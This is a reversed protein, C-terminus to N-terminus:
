KSCREGHEPFPKEHAWVTAGWKDGGLNEEALHRLEEVNHGHENQPFFVLARGKRPQVRLGLHPFYTAGGETVDSLYTLVTARRMDLHHDYYGGEPYRVLVVPERNEFPFRGEFLEDIRRSLEESAASSKPDRVCSSYSYRSHCMGFGRRGLDEAKEQCQGAVPEALFSDKSSRDGSWAGISGGLTLGERGHGGLLAASAGPSLFNDIIFVGREADLVHLGPMQLNLPHKSALSLDTSLQPIKLAQM